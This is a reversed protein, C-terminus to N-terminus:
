RIIVPTGVTVHRYLWELPQDHMRICGHTVARGISTTDQTGHIGIANGLDLRYHGMVGPRKRHESGLPPVYLTGGIVVQEGLPLASFVGSASVIGVVGGRLTLTRGGSLAVPRGFALHVLRLGRDRAVEHYHWDPPIWVPASDRSIVSRPGTPTVFRHVRGDAVFTRGSGVAVPVHLLTDVRAGIAWLQRLRVSVEVRAVTSDPHPAQAAASAIPVTCCVAAAARLAWRIASTTRNPRAM